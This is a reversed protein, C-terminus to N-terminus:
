YAYIQSTYFCSNTFEYLRSSSARNEIHSGRSSGAPGGLRSDKGNLTMTGEKLTCKWKSKARAVKEFQALILNQGDEDEHHQSDASVLLHAENYTM